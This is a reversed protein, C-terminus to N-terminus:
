EGQWDPHSQKFQAVEDAIQSAVDALAQAPTKKKYTVEDIMTNSLQVFKAWQPSPSPPMMHNIQLANIWPKLEPLQQQFSPDLAAAKVPPINSNPLCWKLSGDKSGMYQAFVAAEDPHQAKTPILFLNGGGTTATGYPIGQATPLHDIAYKLDLGQKKLEEPLFEGELAFAVKGYQFIDGYTRPVSSELADSKERGGLLDAHKVFWELFKQNQPTNITWKRNDFDYFSGGWAANWDRGNFNMWPILGAQVLNGDSDFKNYKAALADLEDFTKPAPGSHIGTNTWFQNFDFEQLLGWFHGGFNIMSWAIPFFEDQKIGIAEVYSDMPRLFGNAAWAVVPDYVYTMVVDPSGSSTMATTYQVYDGNDPIPKIRANVHIGKQQGVSNNFDDVLKTIIGSGVPDNAPTWFELSVPDAAAARRRLTPALNAGLAPLAAGAVAARRLFSRRDLQVPMTAEM